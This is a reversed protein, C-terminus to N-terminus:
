NTDANKGIRTGFGPRFSPTAVIFRDIAEVLLAVDQDIEARLGSLLWAPTGALKDIKEALLRRRRRLLSLEGAARIVEYPGGGAHAREAEAIRSDLRVLARDLTSIYDAKSM